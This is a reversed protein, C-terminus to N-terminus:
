ATQDRCLVFWANMDRGRQAARGISVHKSVRRLTDVMFGYIVRSVGTENSVIRPWASPKSSPLATYDVLVERRTPDDRVVFYGPGTLPSLTQFNAGAVSAESERYFRKEFLSFAPLTNRGYHRVATLLPVQEPVLDASTLEAFGAVLQWLQRQQSRGLSRTAVIRSDQDLADLFDAIRQPPAREVLLRALEHEVATQPM